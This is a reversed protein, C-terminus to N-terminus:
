QSNFTRSAAYNTFGTVSGESRFSMTIEAGVAWEAAEWASQEYSFSNPFGSYAIRGGDTIAFWRHRGDRGERFDIRM